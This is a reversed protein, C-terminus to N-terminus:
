SLNPKEILSYPLLPDFKNSLISFNTAKKYGWLKMAESCGNQITDIEEYTLDKIWHFPASKSNRYTSHFYAIDVKTHTNLFKIVEPHMPLGYFHLIEKTMEYPNISLDEYRVVRFRKPYKKRLLQAEYYETVLDQCLTSPNDCDEHGICWEKHKRSQLTGRPDRVLLAIRVNLEPDDLLKGALPLRLRVIKMSQLPFLRCFPTLFDPHKCLKKNQKCVPWLRTNRDFITNKYNLYEKISTGSYDCQLLKKINSLALSAKLDSENRIQIFKFNMLPELYYFTGPVSNLIDGFFTSGSRWTSIVVSRIPIGGTEPTFDSLQKTSQNNGSAPYKFLKMESSIRERQNAIIDQIGICITSNEDLAKSPTVTQKTNKSLELDPKRRSTQVIIRETIHNGTTWLKARWVFFLLFIICIGCITKVSLLKVRRFM